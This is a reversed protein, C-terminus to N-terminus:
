SSCSLMSCGVKHRAWEPRKAFWKESELQEAYPQKLLQYLEDILDYNGENAQDIALQAMYNRLVYKPNVLNMATQRTEDSTTERSLREAYVKAWDMWKQKIESTLAEVEYFAPKILDLFYSESEANKARSFQSLLRFFITMDTETLQLTEELKQILNWDENEAIALGLKKRMMAPYEVAYNERFENLVAELPETAEVLPYLANALQYLNWHAMQAQQGYQYRKHQRDTTNPTWGPEYGELWGYPGYDITLGLISMNDTNMVGHVFGVRQWDM